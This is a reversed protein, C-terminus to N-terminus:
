RRCSNSPGESPTPLGLAQHEKHHRTRQRHEGQTIANEPSFDIIELSDLGYAELTSNINFEIYPREKSFENPEVVYKQIIGPVVGRLLFSAGVLLIGGAIALRWTRKYLNAVLLAAVIVSLAIMVNIAFLRFHVDTYGAGFVVGEPSLLLNFRELWM